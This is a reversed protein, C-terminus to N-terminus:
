NEVWNINSIKAVFEREDGDISCFNDKASKIRIESSTYPKLEMSVTLSKTINDTPVNIVESYKKGQTIRLETPLSCPNNSIDFKLAGNIKFDRLTSIRITEGSSTIWTFKKNNEDVESEGSWGISAVSNLYSGSRQCRSVYAM